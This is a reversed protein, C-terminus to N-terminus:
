CNKEHNRKAYEMDVHSNGTIFTGANLKLDTYIAVSSQWVNWWTENSISLSCSIITHEKSQSIV